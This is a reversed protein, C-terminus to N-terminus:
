QIDYGNLGGPTLHIDPCDEASPVIRTSMLYKAHNDAFLYVRAGTWRDQGPAGSGTVTGWFGIASPGYHQHSNFWESLLVKRAPEYVAAEFQAICEAGAGPMNLAARLNSIRMTNIQDATHYFCASYCYSTADYGTGSLIDSRCILISPSGRMSTWNTGEAQGISLWPMLPWRWRKGVWLYPDGNCLFTSDFDQTYQLFALGIQRTNYLCTSKNAQERVRAFVPFIIASLIVIIAICVLLEILTFGKRM